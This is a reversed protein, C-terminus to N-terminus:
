GVLEGTRAADTAATAAQAMARTTLVRALHARYAASAHVDPEPELRGVAAEAAGAWAAPDRAADPDQPADATLDVVAPTPAM